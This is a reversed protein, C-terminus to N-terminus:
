SLEIQPHERTLVEFRSSGGCYEKVWDMLDGCAKEVQSLHVPPLGDVNFEISTTEPLTLTHNSQRWVWRRTLVINGEAYIIEGPLPQEVRESGFATFSEDGTAVKLILDQGLHNLSHSGVPLLYKLSLINGIDVLANISPLSDGHLVRRVLSEISPRFDSPKAGFIRFAERWSKIHPDEILSDMSLRVRLGDEAQRLRDILEPSSPGNNLGHAVVVGRVYGPFKEFIQPDIRLHFHSM